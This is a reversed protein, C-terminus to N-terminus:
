PKPASKGLYHTPRKWPFYNDLSKKRSLEQYNCSIVISLANLGETYQNAFDISIVTDTDNM